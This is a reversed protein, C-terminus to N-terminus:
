PKPASEVLGDRPKDQPAARNAFHLTKPPYRGAEKMQKREYGTWPWSKGREILKELQKDSLFLPVSSVHWSRLSQEHTALDEPSVTGWRLIADVEAKNKLLLWPGSRTKGDPAIFHVAWDSEMVNMLVRHM